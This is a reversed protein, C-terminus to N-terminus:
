IVLKKFFYIFLYYPVAIYSTVLFLDELTFFLRHKRESQLFFSNEFFTGLLKIWDEGM